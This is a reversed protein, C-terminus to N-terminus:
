FREGGNGRLLLSCTLSVCARSCWIGVETQSLKRGDNIEVMCYEQKELNLESKIVQIFIVGLSWSL